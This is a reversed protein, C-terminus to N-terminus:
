DEKKKTKVLGILVMVQYVTYFGFIAIWIIGFTLGMEPLGYFIGVLLMILGGLGNLVAGKKTPEGGFAKIKKM